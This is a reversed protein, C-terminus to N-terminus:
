LSRYKRNIIKNQYIGKLDVVLADDNTISAFYSDDLHLYADHAVSIIIVDFPGTTNTLNVGYESTLLESDAIPDEVEVVVGHQILSNIVEIIRSNRVDAVNAKFAIGKVLVRSQALEKKMTALHSLVVNTVYSIMGENVQRATKVLPMEVGVANAKHLLYYPDVAICHGGALGPVFKQFNWKTAAAEIVEASNIKLKDFVIAMENALAINLDRQINELMKAAEAVKITSVANVGAKVISSYVKKIEEVAEADNGAVLKVVNQIGHTKDGPNIREPSYGIKFDIGASLGSVAELIPVCYEETCGPYVTSEIVIYDGKSLYCGITAMANKLLSLDPEKAPTIPTPVTVIFFSAAQLDDDDATFYIDTNSFDAEELEGNPDKRNSLKAIVSKNIDFGIVSFNKAFALALPLGTYGLGIVALKAKKNALSSYM